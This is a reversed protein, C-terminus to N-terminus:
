NRTGTGAISLSVNDGYIPQGITMGYLSRFFGGQAEFTVHGTGSADSLNVRLKTRKERGRLRLIGEVEAANGGILKIRTSEFRAMPHADVDFMARGKLFETLKSDVTTVSTLDVSVEVKSREPRQGDLKVRGTVREFAGEISSGGLVKVSFSTQLNHASLNYSGTLTGDFALAGSVSTAALGFWYALVPMWRRSRSSNGTSGHRPAFFYRRTENVNGRAM